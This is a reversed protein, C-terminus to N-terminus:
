RKSNNKKRIRQQQRYQDRRRHSPSKTPPNTPRPIRDASPVSADAKVTPRHWDAALGGSIFNLEERSSCNLIIPAWNNFFLGRKSTQPLGAQSGLLPTFWLLLLPSLLAQLFTVRYCRTLKLTRLHKFPHFNLQRRSAPTLDPTSTVHTQLLPHPMKRLHSIHVAPRLHFQRLPLSVGEQASLAVLHSATSFVTFGSTRITNSCATNHCYVLTATAAKGFCVALPLKLGSPVPHTRSHLRPDLDTM